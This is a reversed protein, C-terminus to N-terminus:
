RRGLNWDFLSKVHKRTEGILMYFGMNDRSVPYMEISYLFKGYKDSYYLSLFFLYHKGDIYRHGALRREKGDQKGYFFIKSKDYIKSPSESFM